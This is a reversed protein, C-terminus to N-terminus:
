PTPTELDLADWLKPLDRVREWGHGAPGDFEVVEISVFYDDLVAEREAALPPSCYDEVEFTAEGTEPDYRADTLAVTLSHGFPRMSLIEGDDLRQRLEPFREERPVARVFRQAM